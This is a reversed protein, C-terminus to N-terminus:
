PPMFIIPRIPVSNRACSYCRIINRVIKELPLGNKEYVAMLFFPLMVLVM